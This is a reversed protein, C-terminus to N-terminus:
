ADLDILELRDSSWANPDPFTNSFFIVHPVPFNKQQSEYKPSFLVGNKLNEAFSYLHKLNDEQARAIDFIVIPQDKFAYAMDTHKGSLLLAKHECLLHRALRSKGVNGVSDHVWIIKRDNPPQALKDLLERQWPRPVFGEDRPRAELVQALRELGRFYKVFERPTDEAARRLGGAKVAEIAHDLDTRHGQNSVALQGYEFRDSVYTLDKSCYKVADAQNSRRHEIHAGPIWRLIRARTVRTNFEAYIQWHLYGTRAGAELQGNCWSVYEPFVTTSFNAEDASLTIMAHIFQPAPM